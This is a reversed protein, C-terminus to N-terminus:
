LKSPRRHGRISFFGHQDFAGRGGRSQPNNAQAGLPAPGAVVVLRNKGAYGCRQAFVVGFAAEDPEIHFVLSFQDPIEVNFGKWRNQNSVAIAQLEQTRHRGLGFDQRAQKVCQVQRIGRAPRM